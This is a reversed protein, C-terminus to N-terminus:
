VFTVHGTKHPGRPQPACCEPSGVALLWTLRQMQQWYTSCNTLRCSLPKMQVDHKNMLNNSDDTQLLGSTESGSPEKRGWQGDIISQMDHKHGVQVVVGDVIDLGFAALVDSCEVECWRPESNPSGPRDLLFGVGPGVVAVLDITLQVPATPWVLDHVFGRSGRRRIWDRISSRQLCSPFHLGRAYHWWGNSKVSAVSQQINGDVLLNDIDIFISSSALCQIIFPFDRDANNFEERHRDVNLRKVSQSM